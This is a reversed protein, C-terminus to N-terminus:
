ELIERVESLPFFLYADLFDKRYTRSFREFYANQAPKGYQTDQWEISYDDRSGKNLTRRAFFYGGRDVFTECNFNGLINLTRIVNENTLNDSFFIISRLHNAVEPHIVPLPIRKLLRKM